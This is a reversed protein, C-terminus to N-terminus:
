LSFPLKRRKQRVDNARAFGATDGGLLAAKEDQDDSYTRLKKKGTSHGSSSQIFYCSWLESLNQNPRRKQNPCSKKAARPVLPLGIRDM